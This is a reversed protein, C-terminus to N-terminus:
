NEAAREVAVAESSATVPVEGVRSGVFDVVGRVGVSTAARLEGGCVAEVVAAVVGFVGVLVAEEASDEARLPIPSGVDDCELVARWCSVSVGVVVVVVM